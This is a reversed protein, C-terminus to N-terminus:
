ASQKELATRAFPLMTSVLDVRSDLRKGLGSLLGLVRMIFVFEQPLDILPNARVARSLRANIQAFLEPDVYPRGPATIGLFAKGLLLLPTPDGDRTSFGLARFADPVESQHGGLVAEALRAFGLRFWDPVRRCQGFDLLVLNPGPQVFLNGPHPDAHFIGHLFMQECYVDIVLQAVAQVDIDAAEMGAVDIIRIGDLFEMTLVRPTSYDWIIDPVIVDSRHAFNAAIAEANCGENVFDLEKPISESLEDMIPAFNLGRELRTALSLLFRISRLDTQVIERVGPYQIKVAVLRGDKLRAKHVQALSAAAIPERDFEAFVEEVPRKLEQVLVREMVRYPKPPVEDLLRSLVVIYEEPILDARSAIIQGIKIMLGQLNVALRYAQLACRRHHASRKAEGDRLGLYRERVGIAKYGLYVRAALVSVAAFRELRGQYRTLRM